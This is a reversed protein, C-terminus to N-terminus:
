FIAQRNVLGEDVGVVEVVPREVEGEIQFFGVFSASGHEVEFGDARNLSCRRKQRPGLSTHFIFCLLEMSKWRMPMTSM